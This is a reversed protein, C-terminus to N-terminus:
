QELLGFCERQEAWDLPIGNKLSDVTLRAPQIGSLIAEVVDPALFAYRVLRSVYRATVGAERAIDALSGVDGNLLRAAWDHGRVVAKILAADPIPTVM